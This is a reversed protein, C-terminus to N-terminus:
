NSQTTAGCPEKFYGRPNLSITTSNPTLPTNFSTKPLNTPNILCPLQLIASPTFSTDIDSTMSLKRHSISLDFMDQVLNFSSEPQYPSNKSFTKNSRM